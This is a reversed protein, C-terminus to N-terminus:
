AFSAQPAVFEELNPKVRGLLRATLSKSGNHVLRSLNLVRINEALGNRRVHSNISPCVSRVFLEYNRGTVFPREYVYQISASYWTRSVLVAALLSSPSSQALFSAIIEVIEVPLSISDAM